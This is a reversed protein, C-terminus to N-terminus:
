TQEHLQRIFDVIPKEQAVRYSPEKRHIDADQFYHYLQHPVISAVDGLRESLRRQTDATAAYWADEDEATQLPLRIIHELEDALFQRDSTSLPRAIRRPNPGRRAVLFFGLVLALGIPLIISL